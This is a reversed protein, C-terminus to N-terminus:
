SQTKFNLFISKLGERYNPYKLKIKLESKIKENRIKKNDLYFTQAMESFEAKNFSREKPLDIKLLKCAFEVVEKSAAPEDDCVNYISGPNPRKMSAKLTKILDDVHIRNNIQGKKNIRKGRGLKVTELVNRGPGYIGAPRFIHVGVKEERNLQLWQNEIELRSCNRETNPLLNSTEDVWEGDHNGYVGTSSLYGLWRLNESQIIANRFKKFIIDITCQPPITIMVHTSSFIQEEILCDEGPFFFTNFGEKELTKLKKPDRTTGSVKWGDRILSQGLASGSFGLGFCFFHNLIKDKKIKM